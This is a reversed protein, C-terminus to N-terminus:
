DGEHSIYEENLKKRDIKGNQNIPLSNLKHYQKPVMYDPLISIITNRLPREDINGSYCLILQEKEKDFLCCSNTIGDIVSVALEIEGLEIRHGMHKIQFDKRGDYMLEGRQNYHVLDGTRYIIDRYNRHLPNQVFVEQTRIPDRYYGYALSAGRVCLEGQKEGQVLNNNEDLVLITSGRCPIGIPLPASDDFERDVVYYTCDVTIETPGYLNAFRAKPLIRRWINLQKNPMVEGAFLIKKLCSVDCAKLVDFNAISCLVSPVWFVMNIGNNRVYELLRLPFSFLKRPIIHLTAGTSVMQYIDLVSNDFYFPAQNGIIDNEDVSFTETVWNTYDIVSRQGITVGKPVGTSGSTFLVYLVDMSDIRSSIKTLIDTDIESQLLESLLIIRTKNAFTQADKFHQEATLIVAPELVDVIKQLRKPPMKSDLVTYFNGSYATGLFSVVSEASQDLYIAVPQHFIDLNVLGSAVSLANSRLQSFSLLKDGDIIAIKDSFNKATIDLYETIIRPM